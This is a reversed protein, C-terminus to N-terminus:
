LNAERTPNQAVGELMWYMREPDQFGTKKAIEVGNGDLIVIAPRGYERYRDGLEVDIEDTVRIPIYNKEISAMVQLDRWTSMDMKTCLQCWEAKLDVLVLKNQEKATAFVAPDWRNWPVTDESANNTIENPSSKSSGLNDQCAATSLAILLLGTVSLINKM